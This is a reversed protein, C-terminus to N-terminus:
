FTGAKVISLAAPDIRRKMAEHIQELTLEGVKQEFQAEWKMDRNEYLHDALLSALNGDRSRYMKLSQLYGSRASALEEPKFGHQLVKQLEELAATQVRPINEPAAIANMGFRGVPEFAGATVFSSVGYSLGEKQRIRTALRSNLFGGGLMYNGLKLAPYDPDDEGLKLNLAALFVANAKDQLNLSRDLPSAAKFQAVLRSYPAPSKWDAFLQAVQKELAAADFDGVVALQGQSAGYFQRYFASAQELTVANYDAIDEETTTVYRPDERPYPSLHKSLTESARSQPDSKQEELYTLIEEKLTKFEEQPFSPERLIEAALAMTEPFNPRTTEISVSVATAGGSISVDAKLRDLEDKIQQRTRKRTGRALMEGAISAATQQSQLSQLDGFRLTLDAHVKDGRTQKELLALELGGVQVFRTRQEINEPSPDFAEGESIPPDGQYGALMAAVDPVEPIQAREPTETPLFVGLTRNSPKLYATAVRQVDAAKIERLRDRNLFLLRWDGLAEWESLQLGIRSSDSLALEIQKLMANKARDVEEQTVPQSGVAGLVELMKQEVPELQADTRTQGMFFLLGPERLQFAFGTVSAAIGPEVLAKYLRGSPSDGMVEALLDVAVFDPHSGPMVHYAAALVRADGVRRLTVRREGDQAPERTYTPLLKREPRPIKGFEKHILELTRGPDINGAVVLVANDPQYYKRYFAQLREIPVNEIDSRAGITTNGYNHWLYATSMLRELLIGSPDNEGMEFENRVVTMESDLDKKAIFSNVMRDAELELAWLLNEDTAQFTEYYNTRDYWTTGNPRAGHATLEDPINPHSPTGKFLLHELLHAMGTEGYDEHRSGVLYTINVTATAVSPDPFLLVRLGNNLRYETIGEVSTVRTVGEPLKEQAAAVAALLFIGLCALVAKNRM